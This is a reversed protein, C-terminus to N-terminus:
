RDPLPYNSTPNTLFPIQTSPQFSSPEGGIECLPISASSRVLRLTARNVGPNKTRAATRTEATGLSVPLLTGIAEVAAPVVVPM